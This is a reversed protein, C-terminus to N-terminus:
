QTVAEVVADKFNIANGSLCRGAEKMKLALIYTRIEQSERINNFYIYIPNRGVFELYLRIPLDNCLDNWKRGKFKIELTVAIPLPLV